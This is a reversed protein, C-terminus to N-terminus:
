WVCVGLPSLSYAVAGGSLRDSLDEKFLDLELMEKTYCGFRELTYVDLDIQPLTIPNKIALLDFKFTSFMDLWRDLIMQPQYLEFNLRDFDIVSTSNHRFFDDSSIKSIAVDSLHSPRVNGLNVVSVGALAAEVLTTCSFGVVTNINPFHHQVPGKGEDYKVSDGLAMRYLKLYEAPHKRFIVDYVPAAVRAIKIIERFVGWEETVFKQIEDLATDFGVVNSSFGILDSISPGTVAGLRGNILLRQHVDSKPLRRIDAVQASYAIRLNGSRVFKDHGLSHSDYIAEDALNSGMYLDVHNMVDSDCQYHKATLSLIDEAVFNLIEEECALTLNGRDKAIRFRDLAPKHTNKYLYVGPPGKRMVADVVTKHGIVSVWGMDRLRRALMVRAPIERPGSEVAAYLIRYRKM